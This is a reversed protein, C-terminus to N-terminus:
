QIRGPSGVDTGNASRFAGNVGEQSPAGFQETFPDYTFSYGPVAPGFTVSDVVDAPDSSADDWLLLSDGETGSFSLGPGSYSVIQVTDPVNSSGWWARFQEPTLGEVFVITQGGEIFLDNTIVYPDALGGSDDNFRWNKLNFRQVEFNTLEWWDASPVGPSPAPDSMVETIRLDPKTRVTLVATFRDEGFPNSAILEYIGASNTTVDNLQLLSTTAGPIENGNFLWRYQPAPCGAAVGSLTVNAGLLVISNTSAPNFSPAAECPLVNQTFLYLNGPIRVVVGGVVARTGEESTMFGTDLFAGGEMFNRDFEVFVQEATTVNAPNGGIYMLYVGDSTALGLRLGDRSIDAGTVPDDIPIRAFLQLPISRRRDSLSFRYMTVSGNVPRKTILYGYGGHVFFAECDERRPGPFRLLWTRVIRLTKARHYPSPEKVCHVASHTRPMGNTGIDALYIFGKHDIAIDEWDILNAGATFARIMKGRANIAFLFAAGGDNHTWLVGPYQRSAQLGSSEDMAFHQLRGMRYVGPAETPVGPLQQARAGGVCALLLLVSCWFRM